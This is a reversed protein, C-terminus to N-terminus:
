YKPFADIRHFDPEDGPVPSAALYRRRDGSGHIAFANWSLIPDPLRGRAISARGCWGAGEHTVSYTIPVDHHAIRRVGNLELALWHGGPGFELELYRDGPGVLFLEVVEFDWLGDCRGPPTGPAPDGHLPADIRVDLLHDTEDLQLRVREGPLAPDGNWLRDIEITRVGM